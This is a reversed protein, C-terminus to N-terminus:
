KGEREYQFLKLPWDAGKAAVAGVYGESPALPRFWWRGAELGDHGVIPLHTFNDPALSVTFSALSISLGAGRAKIYAEKRTWCHFFMERQSAKLLTRLADVEQPSFFRQALDMERLSPRIYEVDVGVEGGLTFAFLALGHSHSLNFRLNAPRGGSDLAPKGHANVCFRFDSAPTGLYRALLSRLIGRGATYRDRHLPAHFREARASEDSSLTQRWRGLTVPDLDLGARWVHVENASLALSRPASQWIPDLSM